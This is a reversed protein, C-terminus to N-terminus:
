LGAAPSYVPKRAFAVKGIRRRIGFPCGHGHRLIRHFAARRDPYEVAAVAQRRLSGIRPVVAGLEKVQVIHSGQGETVVALIEDVM